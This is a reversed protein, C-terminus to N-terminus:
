PKKRTDVDYRQKKHFAKIEEEQMFPVIGLIPLGLERELDQEDKISKDLVEKLLALGVGVILGILLSIVLNIIPQPSVPSNSNEFKAESLVSVNNVDMINPIENKFTESLNNALSVAIQPNSENVTITAVQSEEESTVDIKSRLESITGEYNTKEIVTELISPSTIIVSYTNILDRSSQLDTSTLEEQSSQSQNILIQTSAEYKPEIIFFTLIMAVIFSILMFVIIFISRKKLIDMIEKLSMSEGM